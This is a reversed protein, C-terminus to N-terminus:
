QAVIVGKEAVDDVADDLSVPSLYAAGDDFIGAEDAGDQATETCARDRRVREIARQKQGM